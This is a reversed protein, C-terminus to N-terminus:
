QGSRVLRVRNTNSRLDVSIDGQQFDVRWASAADFASPSGSWFSFAQNGLLAVDNIAHNLKCEDVLSALENRNPLRWNNFGKYTGVTAAANLAAQWNFPPPYGTCNVGSSGLACRDWMLGTRTDTVTSNVSDIVYVSTPNSALMFELCPLAHTWPSYSALMTCAALRLTLPSIKMSKRKTISREYVLKPTYM